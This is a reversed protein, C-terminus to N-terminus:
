VRKVTSLISLVTGTILLHALIRDCRPKTSFTSIMSLLYKEKMSVFTDAPGLLRSFIVRLILDWFTLIFQSFHWSKPTFIVDMEFEEKGGAWHVGEEEKEEEGEEDLSTSLLGCHESSGDIISGNSDSGPITHTKQLPTLLIFCFPLFSHLLCFTQSSQNPCTLLSYILWYQTLFVGIQHM